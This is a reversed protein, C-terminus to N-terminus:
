SREGAIVLSVAIFVLWAVAGLAAFGLSYPKGSLFQGFVLAGVAINALESFREVLVGRRRDSLRLM